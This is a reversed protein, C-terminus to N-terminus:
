IWNKIENQAFKEAKIEEEHDWYSDFNKNQLARQTREYKLGYNVLGVKQSEIAHKTEHLVSLIFTRDDKIRSDGCLEIDGTDFNFFALIDRDLNCNMIINNRVNYHDLIDYALNLRESDNM